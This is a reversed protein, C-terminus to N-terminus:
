WWAEAQVGFTFGSTDSGFPNDGNTIGAAGATDNWDFYGAFLRLLPRSWINREMGLQLAVVAQALTMKDGDDPEVQNYGLETAVSIHKNFWYVPRVGIAFWEQGDGGGFSQDEYVLSFQGGIRSGNSPQWVLQESIRWTKDDDSSGAGSNSFGKGLANRGNLGKGYQLAVKNFGSLVKDQFHQIHFALGSDAGEIVDRSESLNRYDLGLTLNGNEGTKIDSLRLDFRQVSLDNVNVTDGHITRIQGNEDEIEFSQFQDNTNRFYSLHLKGFGSNIDEVGGGAGSTDWYYWDNMHIDHRRYFRKGAWFSAGALIGETFMNGAKAYLNRYSPEFQEWDNEGQPVAAMTFRMDYKPDDDGVTSSTYYFDLETYSECENGLRYKASSGPVQFCVQDGGESNGGTGARFYGGFRFNDDAEVATSLMGATILATLYKSRFKM